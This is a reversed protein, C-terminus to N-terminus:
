AQGGYCRSTAVTKLSSPGPRSQHGSDKVLIANRPIHTVPPAVTPGGLTLQKGEREDRGATWM